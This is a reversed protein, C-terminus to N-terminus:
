GRYQKHSHIHPATNSINLHNILQKTWDKGGRNKIVTKKFSSTTERGDFHFLCSIFHNKKKITM